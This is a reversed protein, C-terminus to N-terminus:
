RNNSSSRGGPKNMATPWKPFEDLRKKLRLLMDHDQEDAKMPVIAIRDSNYVAVDSEEPIPGTIVPPQLQWVERGGTQAGGPVQKFRVDPILRARGVVDIGKIESPLRRPISITLYQGLEMKSLRSFVMPERSSAEIPQKRDTFNM